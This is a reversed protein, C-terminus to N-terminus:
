EAVRRTTIWRQFWWQGSPDTASLGSIRVGSSASHIFRGQGVYLGVHSVPGGPNASFALIDGPRLESEARGVERGVAAQDISRRPVSLGARGYAYQILGSCDFGNGDNGGWQYPTGMAGLAIDV